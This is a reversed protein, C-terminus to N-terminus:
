LLVMRTEAPDCYEQLEEDNAPSRCGEKGLASPAKSEVEEGNVSQVGCQQSATVLQWSSLRKKFDGSLDRKM